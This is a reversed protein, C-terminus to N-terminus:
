GPKDTILDEIQILVPAIETLAQRVTQFYNSYVSRLIEQFAGGPALGDLRARDRLFAVNGMQNFSDLLSAMEPATVYISDKYKELAAMMHSDDSTAPRSCYEIGRELVDELVESELRLFKLVDGTQAPKKAVALTHCDKVRSRLQRDASAFRHLADRLSMVTVGDRLIGGETANIFRVSPHNRIEKTIWNWYAALKDTTEIPRAFVDEMVIMKDGSRLSEWKMQWEEASLLGPFWKGDTHLGTCYTRGETYALDQGVFIIPDCGLTLAFDLAMTAVSGWARLTGKDALLRSLSRLSSNEYTCSITRGPFEKFVADHATAEAVVLSTSIAAGKLHLYNEYNPDGSLVFHPEIQSALLPKLATDTALILARGDCGRLDQINRDLSPGASVLIAPIGAFRNAFSNVGPSSLAAPLNRVFNKLFSRARGVLTNIDTYIQFTESQIVEAAAKFLGPAVAYSPTHTLFVSKQAHVPDFFDKWQEALETGSPPWAFRLHPLLLLKRLDRSQFAAKLIQLDSEIIFYRNGPDAKELLADLPYGLGFGLLVFYNAGDLDHKLLAARAEKLPDYRSHLPVASTGSLWRASPVGSASPFVEIRTSELTALALSLGPHTRSLLDLNTRLHDM